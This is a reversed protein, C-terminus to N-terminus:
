ETIQHSSTTRAVTEETMQIPTQQQPSVVASSLSLSSSDSSPRPLNPPLVLSLSSILASNISRVRGFRKQQQLKHPHQECVTSRKTAAVPIM